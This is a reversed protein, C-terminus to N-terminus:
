LMRTVADLKVREAKTLSDAQKQLRNALDHAKDVQDAKVYCALEEFRARRCVAEDGALEASEAFLRAAVAYLGKGKLRSAKDFCTEATPEAASVSEAKTPAASVPEAVPAEAEKKVAPVVDNIRSGSKESDSLEARTHLSKVVGLPPPYSIAPTESPTTPRVAPEVMQAETPMHGNQAPASWSPMDAIASQQDAPENLELEDRMAIIADDDVTPVTSPIRLPAAEAHSSATRENREEHLIPHTEARDPIEEEDEKLSIVVPKKRALRTRSSPLSSGLGTARSPSSVLESGTLVVAAYTALPLIISFLGFWLELASAHLVYVAIGYTVAVLALVVFASAIAKSQLASQSRRLGIIAGVVVVLAMPVIMWWMHQM